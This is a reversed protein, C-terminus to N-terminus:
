IWMSAMKTYGFSCLIQFQYKAHKHSLDNDVDPNKKMNKSVRLYLKLKKLATLDSTGLLWFDGVQYANPIKSISLKRL